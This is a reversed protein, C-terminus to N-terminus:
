GIFVGGAIGVGIGLIASMVTVPIIAKKDESAVM